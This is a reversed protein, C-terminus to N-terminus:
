SSRRISHTNNELNLCAISLNSKALDNMFFQWYITDDWKVDLYKREYAVAHPLGVDRDNVLLDLVAARHHPCMLRYSYNNV